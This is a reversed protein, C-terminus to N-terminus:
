RRLRQREVRRRPLELQAHGDLAGAAAPVLILAKRQSALAFEDQAERSIAFREALNEATEGMAELPFRAELRPNPFRWGLSTDYLTINGMKPAVSGRPQVYPARSM